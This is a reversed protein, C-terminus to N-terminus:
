QEVWKKSDWKWLRMAGTPGFITVARISLPDGPIGIFISGNIIDGDQNILSGDTTFMAPTKAATTSFNIGSSDTKGFADPTDLTVSSPPVQFKTRGELTTTRMLITTGGSDIKTALITNTGFTIQVNRRAAVSLERANRIGTALQTLGGDARSTKIMGQVGGLSLGLLLLGIAVVLMLEILTFGRDDRFNTARM